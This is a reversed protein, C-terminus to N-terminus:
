SLTTLERTSRVEGRGKQVRKDTLELRLGCWSHKPNTALSPPLSTALALPDLNSPMARSGQGVQQPGALGVPAPAGLGM